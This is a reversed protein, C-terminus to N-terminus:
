PPSIPAAVPTRQPTPTLHPPFPYEGERKYTSQQGQVKTARAIRVVMLVTGLNIRTEMDNRNSLVHMCPGNITSVIDQSLAWATRVPVELETKIGELM